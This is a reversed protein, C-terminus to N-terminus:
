LDSYCDGMSAFGERLKGNESDWYQLTIAMQKSKSMDATEDFRISFFHSHTVNDIIKNLMLPGICETM